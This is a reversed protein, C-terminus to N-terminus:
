KEGDVGGQLKRMKEFYYGFGLLILGGTIFFLSKPMFDYFTDIYYRFITVCIFILSILNGKKTIFLLLIFYICAFTVSLVNLTINLNRFIDWADPITLILGFVGLILMGQIRFIQTNFNISAFFMVLGIVFFALLVITENFDFHVMLYLLSNLAVLNNFFCIVSNYAFYRNLFYFGPVILFIFVPIEGLDFYGNIYILVLLHAFIIILKDRFLVAMPLIGVAWLLFAGTFHGGYHFMQGVLFIGAGYILIGLYILSNSINPYEDKLKYSAFNVVLFGGIIIMFKGLKSIVPWNSAIFSLVGLGVLIAGITLLIKIFNYSQHIDYSNIIEEKQKSEILGRAECYNLENKLFLYKEKTVLRKEM